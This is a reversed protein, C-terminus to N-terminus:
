EAEEEFWREEAERDNEGDLSEDWDVKEYEFPQL